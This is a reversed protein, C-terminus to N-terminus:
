LGIKYLGKFGQIFVLEAAEPFAKILHKDVFEM